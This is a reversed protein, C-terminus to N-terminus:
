GHPGSGSDPRARTARIGRRIVTVFMLTLGGLAAAAYGAVHAGGVTLFRVHREPPLRDALHSLLHIARSSALTFGVAAGIVACLAMAALVSAIGWRLERWGLKPWRGARASLALAVGLGAGMWWTAIVGWGLALLVPNATGFIDPHGVTFYEVCAHATVLDHAIGYGIAALVCVGIIKLAEVSAWHVRRGASAPAM